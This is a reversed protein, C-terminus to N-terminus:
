VDPRAEGSRGGIEDRYPAALLPEIHRLFDGRPTDLDLVLTKLRLVHHFENCLSGQRWFVMDEDLEEGFRAYVILNVGEESIDGPAPCVLLAEAEQRRAIEAIEAVRQRAVAM